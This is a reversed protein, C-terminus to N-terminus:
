FGLRFFASDSTTTSPSVRLPTQGSSFGTQTFTNTSTTLTHETILKLFPHDHHNSILDAATLKFGRDPARRLTPDFVPPSPLESGVGVSFIGSKENESM